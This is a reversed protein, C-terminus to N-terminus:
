TRHISVSAQRGRSRHATRGSCRDARSSCDKRLSRAPRCFERDPRACGCTAPPSRPCEREAHATPHPRRYRGPPAQPRFALPDGAYAALRKVHVGAASNLRDSGEYRRLRANPRRLSHGVKVRCSRSLLGTRGIVTSAGRGGAGSIPRNTPCECCVFSLCKHECHGVNNLVCGTAPKLSAAVASPNNEIVGRM